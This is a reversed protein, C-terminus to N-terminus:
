RNDFEWHCNPCLGILNGLSNIESIPTDDSFSSVSKIHCIEVHKDYGCIACKKPSFRKEADRRITSRASQWTKRSAFLEGKTRNGINSSAVVRHNICTSSSRGIIKGCTPCTNKKKNKNGWRSSKLCDNCLKRKKIKPIKVGSIVDIIKLCRRCRNPNEYYKAEANERMIKATAKGGLSQIKKTIM